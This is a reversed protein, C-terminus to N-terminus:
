ERRGRNASSFSSNHVMDYKAMLANISQQIDPLKLNSREIKNNSAEEAIDVDTLKIQCQIEDFKRDTVLEEQRFELLTIADERVHFKNVFKRIRTLSEKVVGRKRKFDTLVKQQDDDLDMKIYYILRNFTM